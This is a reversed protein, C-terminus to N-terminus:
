AASISSHRLSYDLCASEDFLGRVVHVGPMYYGDSHVAHLSRFFLWLAQLPAHRRCHLVDTQEWLSRKNVRRKRVHSLATIVDTRMPGFWLILVVSLFSM